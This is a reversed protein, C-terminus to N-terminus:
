IKFKRKWNKPWTVLKCWRGRKPDILKKLIYTYIPKLNIKLKVKSTYIKVYILIFPLLSPLIDLEAFVRFAARAATPSWPLRTSQPIAWFLGSSAWAEVRWRNNVPRLYILQYSISYYQLPEINFLACLYDKCIM